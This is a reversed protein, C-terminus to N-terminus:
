SRDDLNEFLADVAQGLRDVITEIHHPQSIYPPALLAHDGRRGDITGGTPYIGLGMEMAVNKIREHIRLGPDFPLKRERDQLFELAFFLGRGRIDGVHEHTAFREKLLKELLRGQARVNDLLREERIIRQVELAAACAVPHAQYTHGHM